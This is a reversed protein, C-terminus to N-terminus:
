SLSRGHQRQQQLALDADAVSPAPEREAARGSESARHNEKGALSAQLAHLLQVERESGSGCFNSPRGAQEASLLPRAHQSLVAVRVHVNSALGQPAHCRAHGHEEHKSLARRWRVEGNGHSAGNGAERQKAGEEGNGVRCRSRVQRSWKTKRQKSGGVCLAVWPVVDEDLSPQPHRDRVSGRAGLLEERFDRNSRHVNGTKLMPFHFLANGAVFRDIQQQTGRISGPAPVLSAVCVCVCLSFSFSSVVRSDLSVTWVSPIAELSDSATSASTLVSSSAPPRSFSRALSRAASVSVCISLSLSQISSVRPVM